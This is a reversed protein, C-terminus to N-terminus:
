LNLTRTVTRKAGPIKVEKQGPAKEKEWTEKERSVKESNGGGPILSGGSEM